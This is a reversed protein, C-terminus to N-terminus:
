SEGLRRQLDPANVPPGQVLGRVLVRAEPFSEGLRRQLDPVLQRTAAPSTSTVLAQAFGPASARNGVINYYFAPASRGMVWSVNRIDDEARLVDDIGLAVRRTEELATGNALEVELYFQDREVGPFFQATLTPVSAFGLVPLVLALMVSKAPNQLGWSISGRFLEGARGTRVGRAFISQRSDDPLIWGAVAPTVTVALVFSWGLMAVVAIAISSVFDGPPGPLLIMPTFSLATTVTSALLPAFLRRVSLRVAELRSLGSRIRRGVDDTMVIAADVLLGLAVVLGTVSMQHISLGILNMTALTALTVVPLIIAVIMAARAGLTLFLVGVVLVVGIMMNLGVERLRDATYRSQDFVLDLSLSAPLVPEYAALTKQVGDMWVDVQLDDQIRAAM